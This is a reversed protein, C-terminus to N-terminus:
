HEETGSVKHRGAGRVPVSAIHPGLHHDGDDLGAFSGKWGDPGLIPLYFMRSKM